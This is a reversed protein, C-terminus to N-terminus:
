CATEFAESCKYFHLIFRLLFYCRLEIELYLMKLPSIGCNGTMDALPNHFYSGTSKVRFQLIEVIM